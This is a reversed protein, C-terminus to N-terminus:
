LELSGRNMMDRLTFKCKVELPGVKTLFTVQKDELTLPLVRSFYARLTTMM